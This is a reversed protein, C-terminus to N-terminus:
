RTATTRSPYIASRLGFARKLILWVPCAGVFVYRELPWGRPSLSRRRM